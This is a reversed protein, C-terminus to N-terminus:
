ARHKARTALVARALGREGALEAASALTQVFVDRQAHSGGARVAIAVVPTLQEVAAAYRGQAYALLGEAAPVGFSRAVRGNDTDDAASAHLRALLRRAPEDRGAGALAMMAHLDNFVYWGDDIRAEWAAALPQWRTGLDLGQLRLRWLLASADLMEMVANSDAARAIHADYIRLAEERRREELHFLAAHWWNHVALSSTEAWESSRSRLWAVGTDPRGTMEMVHAVAHIAWADRPERALAGHGAQEAREYDGCEELGFAHMGAYFGELMTGADISSLRRAVRDRLERTNGLLFDGQHAAFMALADRPETALIREWHDCADHFRGRTWAELAAVHALERPGLGQELARVASLAIRAQALLGRETSLAYLSGKLIQPMAFVPDLALATDAEAVPDRDFALVKWLARDFARVASSDGTRQTVGFQDVEPM